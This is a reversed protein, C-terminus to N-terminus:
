RTRRLQISLDQPDQRPNRLMCDRARSRLKGLRSHRQESWCSTRDEDTCWPCRTRRTCARGLSPTRAPLKSRRREGRKHVASTQGQSSSSNRSCWCPPRKCPECLHIRRTQERSHDARVQTDPVPAIPVAGPRSEGWIGDVPRLVARIASSSWAVRPAEDGTDLAPRNCRPAAASWDASTRTCM